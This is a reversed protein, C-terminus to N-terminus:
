AKEPQRHRLEIVAALDFIQRHVCWRLVLHGIGIQIGVIHALHHGLLHPLLGNFPRFHFTSIPFQAFVYNTCIFHAMEKAM